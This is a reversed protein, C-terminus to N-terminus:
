ETFYNGINENSYFYAEGEPLNELLPVVAATTPEDVARAVLTCHDTAPKLSGLDGYGLPGDGSPWASDDFDAARWDGPTQSGKLYRWDSSRKLLM